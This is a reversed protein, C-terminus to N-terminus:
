FGHKYLWARRQAEDESPLEALLRKKVAEADYVGAEKARVLAAEIDARLFGKEILNPLFRKPGWLRKAYIGLQKLILEEERLYGEKVLREVAAEACERSFGRESLKRALTRRTNDGAALIKVARVYALRGDEEATLLALADGDLVDGRVPSGASLYKEEPIRYTHTRPSLSSVTLTLLIETGGRVAQVREVIAKM